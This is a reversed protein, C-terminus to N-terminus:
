IKDRLMDTHLEADHYFILSNFILTNLKIFRYFYKTAFTQFKLATM